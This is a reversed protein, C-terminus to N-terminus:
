LLFETLYLFAVFANGILRVLKRNGHAHLKEKQQLFNHCSKQKSCYTSNSAFVWWASKPYHWGFERQYYYISDDRINRLVSCACDHICKASQLTIHSYLLGSVDFPLLLSLEHTHIPIEHIDQYINSILYRIKAPHLLRPHCRSTRWLPCEWIRTIMVLLCPLHFLWLCILFFHHMGLKESM